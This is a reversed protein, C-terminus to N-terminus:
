DNMKGKLSKPTVEKNDQAPVQENEMNSNKSIGELKSKMKELEKEMEEIALMEEIEPMVGGCSWLEFEYMDPEIEDTYITATDLKSILTRFDEDNWEPFYEKTIPPVYLVEDIKGLDDVHFAYRHKNKKNGPETYHTRMIMNNITDIHIDGFKISSLHGKDSLSQYPDLFEPAAQMSKYRWYSYDPNRFKFETATDKEHLAKVFLALQAKVQKPNKLDFSYQDDQANLSFSLCGALALSFIHKM